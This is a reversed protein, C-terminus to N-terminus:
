VAPLYRRRQCFGRVSLSRDRYDDREDVPRRCLVGMGQVVRAKSGQPLGPGVGHAVVARLGPLFEGSGQTGLFTLSDVWLVLDRGKDVPNCVSLTAPSARGIGLTSVEDTTTVRMEVPGNVPYRAQRAAAEIDGHLRTFFEYVAAQLNDPSVQITYGIMSYWATTSKIYLLLDRSTGNLRSGKEANFMAAM